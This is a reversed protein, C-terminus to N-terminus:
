VPRQIHRQLHRRLVALFDEFEFPKTLYDAFGAQRAQAIDSPLARVHACVGLVAPQFLRYM